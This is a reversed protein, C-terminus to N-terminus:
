ALFGDTAPPAKVLRNAENDNKFEGKVPDWKLSRGLRQAIVGLLMIEAFKGAYSFDSTAKTGTRIANLWNNYHNTGPVRAYKRPIQKAVFEQQKATPFTVIRDGNEGTAFSTGSAKFYSGSNDKLGNTVHEPVGHEALAAVQAENGGEKGPVTSQSNRNAQKYGPVGDLWTLKIAGGRATKPFTFTIASGDPFAVPSTGRVKVEIETPLGLGLIYNAPNLVHAAMDGLAGTGFAFLGRWKFGLNEYFPLYPAAGLWLKWNLWDPVPKEPGYKPVRTGQAWVPRNTWAVVETVEGFLGAEYWERLVRIQDKSNGQNGMQTVVGKEAALKALRRAQDVTHTLPKQVYAHKGLAIASYAISFHMHDPTSVSVADIKDGVKELLERYDEFTRADNFNRKKAAQLARRNVDCIGIVQAGGRQLMQSDHGGQGGVGICALTIRNSPANQGRLFGSPLLLLGGAVATTKLFERRSAGKPLTSNTSM